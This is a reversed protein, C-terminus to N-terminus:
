DEPPSEVLGHQIAFRVAEARHHLHLKRMMSSVYNQVTGKSLSLLESIESNSLNQGVFRLIQLERGSLTSLVSEYRNATTNMRVFDFLQTMLKPSMYHNGEHVWEIAKFLEERPADKLIYGAAGRRVAEFVYHDSTHSTLVIVKLSSRLELLKATAEIGNMDPLMMDMLVVDPLLAPVAQLAQRGSSVGGVVRINPANNLVIRLGEIVYEQDDCILVKIM